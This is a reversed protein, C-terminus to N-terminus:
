CGTAVPPRHRRILNEAPGPVGNVGKGCPFPKEAKKVKHVHVVIEPLFLITQVESVAWPIEIVVVQGIDISGELPEDTPEFLLPDVVSGDNEEGGIMPFLEPLVPCAQMAVGEILLLNSDGQDEEGMSDAFPHLLHWDNGSIHRRGKDVQRPVGHIGRVVIGVHSDGKNGQKPSLLPAPVELSINHSPCGELAPVEQVPVPFPLQNIKGLQIEELQEVRDRVGQLPYVEKLLIM